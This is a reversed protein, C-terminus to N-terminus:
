FLRENQKLIQPRTQQNPSMAINRIEVMSEPRSQVVFEEVIDVPLDHFVITWEHGDFSASTPRHETGCQDVAIVRLADSSNLYSLTVVAHDTDMCPSVALEDCADRGSPDVTQETTWETQSVGLGIDAAQSDVDAYLSRLADSALAEASSVQFLLKLGNRLSVSELNDPLCDLPSGDPRWCRNAHNADDMVAILEYGDDFVLRSPIELASSMARGQALEAEVANTPVNLNPAKAIPTTPLSPSPGLSLDSTVPTLTASCCLAALLAISAIMCVSSRGSSPGLESASPSLIIEIRTRLGGGTASATLLPGRLWGAEASWEVLYRAYDTATTARVASSDALIEQDRDMMRRLCWFLPNAFLLPSLFRVLMLMKLDGRRIHEWEHAVASRIELSDNRQVIQRPILILACRVGTALPQGSTSMRTEASAEVRKAEVRLSDNANSSERVLRAVALCGLLLWIVIGISGIIHAFILATSLWHNSPSSNLDAIVPTWSLRQGHPILLVAIATVAVAIMGARALLVREAAVASLRVGLIAVGLLLTASAQVDIYWSVVPSLASYISEIGM